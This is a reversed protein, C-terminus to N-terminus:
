DKLWGVTSWDATGNSAFAGYNALKPRVAVIRPSQAVPLSHGAKWIKRDAENVITARKAEDLTAEAREFLEQGGPISVHGFNQTDDGKGDEYINAQDLTYGTGVWSFITLDFAGPIVHESFFTATPVASIKVKAGIASLQAQLLEAIQQSTPTQAPIVLELELAAGKKTRVQGNLTWGAADLERQAREVDFAIEEGHDEYAPDSQLYMRNGLPTIEIPLGTYLTKVIATRDIARAVAVRTATDALVGRAGFTIHSFQPSASVRFETDPADKVRPYVQTTSASVVDLENNLYADVDAKGEMVRFTLTDLKAKAGWWDKNRRLTITQATQDVDANDLTFPGATAVVNNIWGSNFKEPTDIASAPYLPSFLTHWESYPKAFTVVVDRDSDGRNVSSINRFGNTGAIQYAPDAGRAATWEAAFDKWSLPEGTSWRARQNIRYHVVMPDTSTVEALDLYDTALTEQGEADFRFLWPSTAKLVSATADLPGDTELFNWQQPLATLPIRLDGGDRVDGVPHPNVEAHNANPPASGTPPAASPTCANLALALAAILVTTGWRTRREM